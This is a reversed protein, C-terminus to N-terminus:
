ACTSSWDRNRTRHKNVPVLSELNHYQWATPRPRMCSLGGLRALKIVYHAISPERPSPNKDPLLEDRLYQDLETFAEEPSAGPSTRNLTSIWFIRWSPICLIAVLNVLREATRLKAEEARCGSKLTKPFTASHLHSGLARATRSAAALAAAGM